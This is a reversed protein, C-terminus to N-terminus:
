EFEGGHIAKLINSIRPSRLSPHLLKQRERVTMVILDRIPIELEDTPLSENTQLIFELEKNSIPFYTKDCDEPDLWCNKWRVNCRICKQPIEKQNTMEQSKFSEAILENIKTIQEQQERNRKETLEKGEYKWDGCPIDCAYGCKKDACNNCSPTLNKNTM